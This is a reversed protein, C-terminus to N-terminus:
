SEFRTFNNSNKKCDNNKRFRPSGIMLLNHGGSAAVEVARKINKQGKVDAFDLISKTNNWFKTNFSEFKVPNIKIKNNLFNVAERLNSIPIITLDKVISAEIANAKPLMVKHIGLKVLEICMPLVGNVKNLKGDLSLEGLLAIDNLNNGNIYNNSSLVGIAIPLDFISGEKRKTAPALNVLIRKSPLNFGSNKIATRVREKSEKVTIDPLGVVGFYPLGKSVDVQVEVLYGSLGQLSISKILSLM